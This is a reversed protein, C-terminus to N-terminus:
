IQNLENINSFYNTTIIKGTKIYKLEGNVNVGTQENNHNNGRERYKEKMQNVLNLQFNKLCNDIANFTKNAPASSTIWSLRMSFSVGNSRTIRITIHTKPM